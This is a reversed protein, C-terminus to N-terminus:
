RRITPLDPSTVDYVSGEQTLLPVLVAAKDASREPTGWRVQKDGDLGFTVLGTSGAAPSVDVTRVQTRVAAPLATLATLAARTFPDDPGPTGVDLRPLGPGPTGAYVVGTEDVLAVGGATTVSAVPVRETIAIQVTHPWGRSVTASAVAPLAAVRTAIGTPDIAALPGGPTVAAAALVEPVPVASAGTVQVDQVDALGLDYLLVRGTLGLGVFLLLASLAAALRRRRYQEASVPRPPTRVAGAGRPPKRRRLALRM